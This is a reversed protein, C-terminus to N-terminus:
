IFLDRQPIPIAEVGSEAIPSKQVEQGLADKVIDHWKRVLLPEGMLGLIDDSDYFEVVQPAVGADSNSFSLALRLIVKEKDKGSGVEKEEKSISIRKIIKLDVLTEKIQPHFKLYLLQSKSRDIGIAYTRRWIDYDDITLDYDKAKALFAKLLSQEHKKKKQHSVVFPICFAITIALVITLTTIDIM